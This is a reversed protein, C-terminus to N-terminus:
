QKHADNLQTRSEKQFLISKQFFLYHFLSFFLPQFCSTKEVTSLSFILINKTNRYTSLDFRVRKKFSLCASHNVTLSLMSFCIM